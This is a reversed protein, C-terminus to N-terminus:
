YKFLIEAKKTMAKQSAEVLSELQIKHPKNDAGKWTVTQEKYVYNYADKLTMVAGDIGVSVAKNFTANAIAIVMGMNGIAKQNADYLVTHHDIVLEDLNKKKQEKKESLEKNKEDEKELRLVEEELKKKTPIEVGKKWEILEYAEDISLGYDPCSVWKNSALKDLQESLLM